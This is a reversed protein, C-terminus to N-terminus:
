EAEPYKYRPGNQTLDRNPDFGTVEFSFAGPRNVTITLRNGKAAATAVGDEGTYVITITKGDELRFDYESWALPPYFVSIVANFPYRAADLVRDAAMEVRFGTKEGEVKEVTLIAEVPPAPPPKECVCPWQHCVPCKEHPKRTPPVPGGGEDPIGFDDALLDWDAENDSDEVSSLIFQAADRVYRVHSGPRDYRTNLRETTNWENHSPPEAAVLMKAVPGKEVLTAIAYSANKPTKRIGGILLGLRYYVARVPRGFDARCVVVKFEGDVSKVRRGDASKELVSMPVRFLVPKNAQLLKKVAKLDVGEFMPKDLVPERGPNANALTIVRSPPLTGSLAERIMSYHAKTIDDDSKPLEPLAASHKGVSDRDLTVKDHGDGTSIEVRLDGQLLATLFNRVVARVLNAKNFAAKGDDTSLNLYPIVISTGPQDGRTLRFDKAFDDLFDGDLVPRRTYRLNNAPDAECALGFWAHPEWRVNNADVHVNLTMRAALFRRQAGVVDRVSYAFATRLRSACSFTAKGAGWSGLKGDRDKSSNSERFFYNHYNWRNPDAESEPPRAEVDGSLGNTNFDELVLFACSEGKGPKDLLGNGANALHEEAGALYPGYDAAPLSAAGTDSFYVRVFVPEGDEARADLSNQIGERIVSELPTNKSFFEGTISAREMGGAPIPDFHWQPTQEDPKEAM